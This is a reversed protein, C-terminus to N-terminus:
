CLDTIDAKTNIYLAIKREYKRKSAREKKKTAIECNIYMTDSEQMKDNLIKMKKDNDQM